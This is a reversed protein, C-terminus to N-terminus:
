KIRLRTTNSLEAFPLEGDKLAAKIKTKNVSVVEKVTKFEDPVDGTIVVSAPNKVIALEFYPCSLRDIGAAEMNDKLYKLVADRKTKASKSRAQMQKIANDIADIDADMNRIFKAVNLAKEEIPATLSELTDLMTQEDMDCAMIEAEAKKYKETLEYLTSM